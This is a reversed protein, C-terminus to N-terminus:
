LGAVAGAKGSLYSSKHIAATVNFCVSVSTQTAEAGFDMPTITQHVYELPLRPFYCNSKSGKVAEVLHELLIKVM